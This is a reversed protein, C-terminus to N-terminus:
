IFKKFINLDLLSILSFMDRFYKFFKLEPPRVRHDETSVLGKFFCNIIAVAAIVLVARRALVAM